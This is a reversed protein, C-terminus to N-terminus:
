ICTKLSGSFNFTGKTEFINALHAVLMMSAVTDGQKNIPSVLMVTATCPHRCYQRLQHGLYICAEPFPLLLFGLSSLSRKVFPSVPATSVRELCAFVSRTRGSSDKM